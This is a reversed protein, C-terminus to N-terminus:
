PRDRRRRVEDQGDKWLRVLPRTVKRYLLFGALLLLLCIALAAYFLLKAVDAAIGAVGGLGALAAIVAVTAFMVTWKLV